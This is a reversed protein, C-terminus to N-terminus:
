QNSQTRRKTHWYYSMYGVSALLIIGDTLLIVPLAFNAPPEPMKKETLPFPKVAPFYDYTTVIGMGDGYNSGGNTINRPVDVIGDGDRDPACWDVWYNGMGTTNWFINEEEYRECNGVSYVLFNNGYVYCNNAHYIGVMGTNIFLNSTVTNNNGGSIVIKNSHFTNHTISVNSCDLLHIMDTFFLCDTILCDRVNVLGIPYIIRNTWLFICNRIIINSVNKIGIQPTDWGETINFCLNEIVIRGGDTRIFPYKAIDSYDAIEIPNRLLEYSEYEIEPHLFAYISASMIFIGFVFFLILIKTYPTKRAIKQTLKEDEASLM